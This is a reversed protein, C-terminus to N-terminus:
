NLLHAKIADIDNANKFPQIITETFLFDNSISYRKVTFNLLLDEIETWNNKLHNTDTINFKTSLAHFAENVGDRTLIAELIGKNDM